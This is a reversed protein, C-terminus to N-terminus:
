LLLKNQRETEQDYPNQRRPNVETLDSISVRALDEKLHCSNRLEDAPCEYCGFSSIANDPNRASIYLVAYVHASTRKDQEASM